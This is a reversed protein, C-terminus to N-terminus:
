TNFVSVICLLAGPLYKTEDFYKCFGISLLGEANTSRYIRSYIM